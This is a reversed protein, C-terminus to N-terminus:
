RTIFKLTLSGIFSDSGTGANKITPIVISGATLDVDFDENFQVGVLSTGISPTNDSGAKTCTTSTIDTEIDTQLCYWVNIICNDTSGSNAVIGRMHKLTCDEPVVFQGWVNRYTIVMDADFADWKRWDDADDTDRFYYGRAATISAAHFPFEQWIVAGATIAGFSGNGTTTISSNGNNIVGFGSSIAGSDLTGTTTIALGNIDAQTQDATAGDEVNIMTRVNAPTIEEIIGAGASDRGLIRDTASVDQIKAYTVQDDAIHATDIAGDAIEASDIADNAMADNDIGGDKVRLTDSNIEITSDDVGVALSIAGFTGGGTLGDGATVGTIDGANPDEWTLVNNTSTLVKSAGGDGATPWTYDVSETIENPAKLGLYHSSNQDYLRLIAQKLLKLYRGESRIISPKGLEAVNKAEGFVVWEGNLKGFLGVGRPTSFIEVDGNEGFNNNPFGIKPLKRDRKRPDFRM